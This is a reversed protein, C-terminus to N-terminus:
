KEPKNEPESQPKSGAAQPTNPRDPQLAGYYRLQRKFVDRDVPALVEDVLSNMPKGVLDGLDSKKWPVIYLVKPLERNGTVATPDLVMKDVTRFRKGGGTAPKAAATPAPSTSVRPEAATTPSPSATAAPQAPAPTQAAPASPTQGPDQAMVAGATGLILSAIAIRYRHKM